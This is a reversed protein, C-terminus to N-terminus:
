LVSYLAHHWERHGRWGRRARRLVAVLGLASRCAWRPPPLRQGHVPGRGSGTSPRAVAELGRKSLSLVPAQRRCVIPVPTRAM